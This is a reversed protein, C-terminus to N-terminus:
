SCGSERAQMGEAKRRAQCKRLLHIFGCWFHYLSPILEFTDTVLGSVLIRGNYSENVCCSVSPVVAHLQIPQQRRWRQNAGGVLCQRVDSLVVVLGFAPLLCFALLSLLRASLFHSSFWLSISPHSPPLLLSSPRVALLSLPSCSANVLSARGCFPLLFVRAAISLISLSLISLSLCPIVSIPNTGWATQRRVESSSRTSTQDM